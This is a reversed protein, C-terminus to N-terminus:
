PDHEGLDLGAVHHDGADHDAVDRRDVADREVLVRLQDAVDRRRPHDDGVAGREAAVHDHLALIQLGGALAGPGGARDRSRRDTTARGARAAAGDAAAVLRPACSGARPRRGRGRAALDHGRRTLAGGLSRRSTGGGRRRPSRAGLFLVDGDDDLVSGQALALRRGLLVLLLATTAAGLLRGAHGGSAAALGALPLRPREGWNCSPGCIPLADHLSLTYSPRAAP